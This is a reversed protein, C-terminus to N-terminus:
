VWFTVKDIKICKFKAVYLLGKNLLRRYLYLFRLYMFINELDYKQKKVAKYTIIIISKLSQINWTIQDIQVSLTLYFCKVLNFIELKCFQHRVSTHEQLSHMPHKEAAILFTFDKFESKLNRGIRIGSISELKSKQICCVNQKM